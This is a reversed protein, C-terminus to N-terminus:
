IAHERQLFGFLVSCPGGVAAGYMVFASVLDWSEIAYLANMAAKRAARSANWRGNPRKSVIFTALLPHKLKLKQVVVEM